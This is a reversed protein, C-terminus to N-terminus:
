LSVWGSKWESVVYRNATEAMDGSYTSRNPREKCIKGGPIQYPLQNHNNTIHFLQAETTRNVKNKCLSFFLQILLPTVM